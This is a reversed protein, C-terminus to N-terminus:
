EIRVEAGDGEFSFGIAAVAIICLTICLGPPLYWWWMERIFGGKSFAFSIMMGWSKM